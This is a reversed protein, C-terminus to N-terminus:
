KAEGLLILKEYDSDGYVGGLGGAYLKAGHEKSILNIVRLEDITVDPYIGLGGVSLYAISRGVTQNINDQLSCTESYGRIGEIRM